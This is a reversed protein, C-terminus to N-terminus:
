NQGPATLKFSINDALSGGTDGDNEGFHFSLAIHVRRTGAPLRGSGSFEKLETASVSINGLQGTPALQTGAWDFFTYTLTPSVHEALGGLWASLHYRVGNADILEAAPSVDIDQYIYTTSAVPGEYFLNTGRHKPGPDSVTIFGPYAGYPSVSAGDSTSWGPIYPAYSPNPVGPGAEAGGNVVLNSNLVSGPSTGLKSLVLSLGDAAGYGCTAANECRTIMTLTVTIQVTGAPVLGIQEQLSLGDGNFGLPGLTVTAFTQGSGNQFAVEMQAPPVLGSGKASGLYASATYKVDGKRIVATESSVDIVQTLTSTLGITSPGSVFYQFRHNPPAPDTGQLLGTLDYPLVNANGTATWDPIDTVVDNVSTGAPGAEAGGNAILNTKGNIPGEQPYAMPVVALLVAAAPLRRFKRPDMRLVITKM